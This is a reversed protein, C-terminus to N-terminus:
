VRSGQNLWREVEGAVETVSKGSTQVTAEAALYLPRREAYLISLAEQGKDLLPRARGPQKECRRLLEDLPADLFVAPVRAQRLREANERQVFVGGGLAVVTAKGAQVSELWRTLQEAELRRFESEGSSKFITAISKGATREIEDDLDVFRWGLQRALLRGVTTKGAGMFGILCVARQQLSKSM